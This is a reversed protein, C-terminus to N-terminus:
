FPRKSAVENKARPKPIIEMGGKITLHDLLLIDGKQENGAWADTFMFDGHTLEIISIDAPMNVKLMGRRKEEGLARAPNVTTMEIVQELSLGLAIFKSMTLLLSFIPGHINTSALDTSITTPMIGQALGQRAIEFSLNPRGHATDMIVGRDQAKRLEPPVTGDPQIVGGAQATYVHSLVDGKDLLPLLKLSFADMVDVEGAKRNRQDGIHVMLSIGAERAVKKAVKVAKLGLKHALPNVARLKIGKIIDRNEVAIKLTAETDIDDWGRIERMMSLGTPCINLYCFVDTKAQTIVYKRFGQFNVCGTSGGDCITTVGRLVGAEDPAAGLPIIADAVHVHLDILGPTVIKGQADIVKRAESPPIEHTLAAIKRDFIGIDRCENIGQAPDILRGGKIVLEYM